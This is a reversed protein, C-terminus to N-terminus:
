DAKLWSQTRYFPGIYGRVKLQNDEVWIKCRYVKGNDPDLINGDDYEQDDKILGEMFEMGIIKKLYRPDNTECEDCVPDPNEGPKRFLKSIRGYVKGGREFVDVISRAEGTNDDITKWKGIVSQALTLDAILCLLIIALSSKM